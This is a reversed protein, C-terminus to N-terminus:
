VLKEELITQLLASRSIQKENAMKDLRKLISPRISIEVRTKVEDTPQGRKKIPQM